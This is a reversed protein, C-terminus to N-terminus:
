EESWGWEGSGVGWAGGEEAAWIVARSVCRASSVSSARRDRRFPNAAFRAAMAAANRLMRLFISPLRSLFRTHSSMLFNRLAHHCSLRATGHWTIVRCGQQATGRRTASLKHHMTHGHRKIGKAPSAPWECCDVHAAHCITNHPIASHTQQHKGRARTRHRKPLRTSHATSLPCRASPPLPGPGRESEAEGPGGKPGKQAVLLVSVHSM